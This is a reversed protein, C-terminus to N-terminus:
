RTPHADAEPRSEVVAEVDFTLDIYEGVFIGAASELVPEWTLSFDKRSVRAAAEFGMRPTGDPDVVDGRYTVDVAIPRCMGHMTLLGAVRVHHSDVARVEDGVFSITPFRGVDLFSESRALADREADGTDISAADVEIEVLAHSLGQEPVILRGGWRRFTGRVQSVGFHSVKLWITSNDPDFVWTETPM